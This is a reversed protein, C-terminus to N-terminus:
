ATDKRAAGGQRPSSQLVDALLNLLFYSVAFILVVAQIVPLDRNGVAEILVTGVGPYSFLYEVVVAGGITLAAVLSAAPIVPALANPLAHRYLVRRPSLGKLQAAFLYESHLVDLFSVRVLRSLYMVGGIVLTAIPLVLAAPHQWPADSPPILSVPPLWRFVTTGFVAILVTGLVFEPTANVVMSAGLFVRDFARDRRQAALVGLLLSLPLMILMAGGSLVLTNRLRPGILEAVPLGNTLSVGWDGRLIGGLWGFYQEALPRELGLAERLTAIREATANVGLVVRAVDGPMAQTAVFILLTVLFLTIVGQGLRALLGAARGRRWRGWRARGPRSAAADPLGADPSEILTTSRQSHETM